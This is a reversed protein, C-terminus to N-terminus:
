NKENGEGDIVVISLLKESIETGYCGSNMVIAGGISGPICSLFEMGAIGNDKAFNAVNKDLAAAGVEIINKEILKMNSFKSSLKIIIGKVGTDRILTNSGAGLINISTDQKSVEKLFNKLQEKNEPRFIIRSSWWLNFWSYKSLNENQIINKGFKKLIM